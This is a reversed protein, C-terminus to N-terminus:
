YLKIFPRPLLMKIASDIVSTEDRYTISMEGQTVSKINNNSSENISKEINSKVLEIAYSYNEEIYSDEFDKNLYHKIAQIAMKKLETETM